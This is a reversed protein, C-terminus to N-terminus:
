RPSLASLRLYHESSNMNMQKVPMIDIRFIAFFKCNIACPNSNCVMLSLMLAHTDIIGTRPSFLAKECCLEPEMRMAESGDMFRLGYVGNQVGRNMIDTLKLVEFPSTAVILKGLQKHPIGRQSCYEYLM